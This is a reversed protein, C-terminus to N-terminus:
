KGYCENKIVFFKVLEYEVGMLIVRIPTPDIIFKWLYFFCARLGNPGQAPYRM